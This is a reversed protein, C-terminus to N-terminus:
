FFQIDNCAPPCRAIEETNIRSIHMIHPKASMDLPKRAEGMLCRKVCELTKNPLLNKAVENLLDTVVEPGHGENLHDVPKCNNATIVAACLAAFDVVSHGADGATPCADRAQEAHVIADAKKNVLIVM